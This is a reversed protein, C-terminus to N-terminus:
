IIVEKWQILRVFVRRAPIWFLSVKNFKVWDLQVKYHVVIGNWFWIYFFLSDLLDALLSLIVLISFQSCLM